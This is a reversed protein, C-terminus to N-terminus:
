AGLSCSRRVSAISAVVGEAVTVSSVVGAFPSAGSFGQGLRFPGTTSAGGAFGVPGSIVPNMTGPEDATGIPCVYLAVTGGVADHVGTLQVWPGAEAAGTSTAVSTEVGNMAFTWCAAVGEACGITDYGLAFGSSASGDQSVATGHTGLADLRVFASVTFPKTTDLVAAESAAGDAPEDFLLARDSDDGALEVLPGATWTTTATLTLPVTTGGAVDGAGEDLLWKGGGGTPVPAAVTIRYVRASSVNGARDVARVQLVHPGSTTPTWTITPATAPVSEVFASDDIGYQYSVVDASEDTLTFSGRQGVGGATADEVYVAPEGAVPTVTPVAPATTDVTLRCLAPLGWRGGEDQGTVLWTYTGGDALRGEPVTVAHRAGSAQQGTAPAAWVVRARSDLVVFRASVHQGDADSLTARLTPTATRVWPRDAGVACGAVPDSVGTQTVVPASGRPPGWASASVAPVVLAAAALM